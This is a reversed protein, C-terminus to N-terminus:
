ASTSSSKAAGSLLKRVVDKTVEDWTFRIVQWGALALLQDRRRDRQFAWQTAHTRFGDTEVIVRQQHWVFDVQMEDGAVTMSVNVQPPPLDAGRCLLLFREELEARPVNEGVHGTELAACLKRVGARGRARSLVEDMAARDLLQLVEAQDCARELARRHLVGALDLLTRAISTCPIGDVSTRDAPILCTSRHVRIGRRALGVRRPITVDIRAQASPLLGHLGAASIHSLLSGSGCALVAAMWLGEVPLDSRGLAYVGRHVPHLRGVAVRHRVGAGSIGLSRLQGFGVVGHQRRALALLRGEREGWDGRHDLQARRDSALRGHARM